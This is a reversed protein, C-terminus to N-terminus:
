VYAIIEDIMKVMIKMMEPVNKKILAFFILRLIKNPFSIEMLSLLISRRFVMSNTAKPCFFINLRGIGAM